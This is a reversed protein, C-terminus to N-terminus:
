RCAELDAQYGPDGLVSGDAARFPEGTVAWREEGDVVAITLDTGNPCHRSDFMLISGDPLTCSGLGPALVTGVAAVESCAGGGPSPASSCAGLLLLAVGFIAARVNM